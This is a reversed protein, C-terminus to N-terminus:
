AIHHGRLIRDTEAMTWVDNVLVDFNDSSIDDSGDCEKGSFCLFGM